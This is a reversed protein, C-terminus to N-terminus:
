FPRWTPRHTFSYTTPIGNRCLKASPTTLWANGQAM